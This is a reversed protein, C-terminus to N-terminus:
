ESPLDGDTDLKRNKEPFPSSPCDYNKQQMAIFNHYLVPLTRILRGLFMNAMIRYAKNQLSDNM